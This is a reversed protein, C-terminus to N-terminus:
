YGHFCLSKIFVIILEDTLLVGFWLMQFASVSLDARRSMRSSSMLGLFSTSPKGPIVTTFFRGALAPPFLCLNLGQNPFIEQLLFHCGVGM